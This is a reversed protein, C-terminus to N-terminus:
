LRYVIRQVQEGGYNFNNHGLSHGDSTGLGEFGTGSFYNQENTTTFKDTGM